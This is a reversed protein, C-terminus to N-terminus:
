KRLGYFCALLLMGFLLRGGNSAGAIHHFSDSAAPFFWDTIFGSVGLLTLMIGLVLCSFKLFKNQKFEYPDSDTFKIKM